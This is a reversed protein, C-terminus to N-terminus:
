KLTALNKAILLENTWSNDRYAKLTPGKTDLLRIEADSYEDATEPETEAKELKERLQRQEDEYKVRRELEAEREKTPMAALRDWDAAKAQGSLTLKNFGADDKSPLKGDFEFREIYSLNSLPEEYQFVRGNRKDRLYIRGLELKIGDVVTEEAKDSM